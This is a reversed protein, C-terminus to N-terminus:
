VLAYADLSHGVRAVGLILRAQDLVAGLGIVELEVLDAGRDGHARLVRRRAVLLDVLGGGRRTALSSAFSSSPQTWSRPRSVCSPRPRIAGARKIRVPSELFALAPLGIESFFVGELCYLSYVPYEIEGPIM